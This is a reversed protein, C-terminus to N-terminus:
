QTVGVMESVLRNFDAEREAVSEPIVHDPRSLKKRSNSRGPMRGAKKGRHAALDHRNVWSLNEVVNNARDYDTHIVFDEGEAPTPLFFQAVLRHVYITAQSGNRTTFSIYKYGGITRPEFPEETGKGKKIRVVRGRDSLKFHHLLPEGNLETMLIWQENKNGKAM